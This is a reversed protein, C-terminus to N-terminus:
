TATVREVYFLNAQNSGGPVCLRRYDSAVASSRTKLSIAEVASGSMGVQTYSISRRKAVFLSSASTTRGVMGTADIAASNSRPSSKAVRYNIPARVVKTLVERGFRAMRMKLKPFRSLISKKILGVGNAVRNARQMPILTYLGRLNRGM